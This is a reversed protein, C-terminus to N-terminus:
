ANGGGERFTFALIMDRGNKSATVDATFGCGPDPSGGRPMRFEEATVMMRVTIQGKQMQAHVALFTLTDLCDEIVREAMDYATIIMGAPYLGTGSSTLAAPIGKLMVYSLSESIALTLEDSSLRNNEALLEMNSRRKIYACCVSIDRLRDDFPREKEELLVSIQDLQPRVIQTIRDYIRNRTEAEAKEQLIKAETSLYANRAEIKKVTEELSRNLLHLPAIDVAWAATGGSIPYRLVLPDEDRRFPYQMGRSAYRVEEQRDLISASIDSLAFLTEYGVNAPIMGCGILLELYAMLCFCFIEGMQWMKKGGLSLPLGATDLIYLAFMVVVPLILLFWRSKKQVLRYKRIVTILATLFLAGFVADYLYYLIGYSKPSGPLRENTTFRFAFSHLDNFMISSALLCGAAPLAYEALRIKKTDAYCFLSIFYNLVAFAMMSVYYGYWAYRCVAPQDQAFRYNVTQMMLYLLFFFIMIRLLCLIRRDTVRKQVFVGWTVVAVGTFLQSFLDMFDGSFLVVHLVGCTLFALFIIMVSRKGTNTM